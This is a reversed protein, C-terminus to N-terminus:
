SVHVARIQRLMKGDNVPRVIFVLRGNEDLAAIEEPLLLPSGESPTTALESFRNKIAKGDLLHRQEIATIVVQPMDSVAKTADLLDREISDRTLSDMSVSDEVRFPGVSMRELENMVADTGLSRAIDSGLSRIYTGSGCVIELTLEPYDYKIIRLEYVTIIKPKLDVPKGARALKYARRGDVKVASFAPPCQEIDGIFETLKSEIEARIPQVAVPLFTIETEIDLSPSKRGLLFTARYVKKTRQILEVLRTAGGICVVLVGSALPDLTGAHGCKVRPIQAEIRDVLDRSSVGSPKNCVLIGHM